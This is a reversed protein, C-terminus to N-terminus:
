AVLLRFASDNVSDSGYRAYMYMGRQGTPRRGAPWQSPYHRHNMLYAPPSQNQHSHKDAQIAPGGNRQGDIRYTSCHLVHPSNPYPLQPLVRALIELFHGGPFRDLDGITTMGDRTKYWNGAIWPLVENVSPFDDLRSTWNVDVVELWRIILV